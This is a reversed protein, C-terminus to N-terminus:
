KKEVKFKKLVEEALFKINSEYKDAWRSFQDYAKERAIKRGTSRDFEDEAYCVATGKFMTPIYCNPPLKVGKSDSERLIFRLAENITKAIFINKCKLVCVCVGKEENVSYSESFKFKM